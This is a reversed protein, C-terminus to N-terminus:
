KLVTPPGGGGLPFQLGTGILTKNFLSKRGAQRRAEVGLPFQLGTGVLVKNLLSERGAQRRAEAALPSNCAMLKGPRKPFWGPWERPDLKERLFILGGRGGCWTGLILRQVVRRCLQAYNQREFSMLISQVFSPMIKAKLRWLVMLISQLFNPM